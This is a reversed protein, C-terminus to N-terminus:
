GKNIVFAVLNNKSFEIIIAEAGELANEYSADDIMQVKTHCKTDCYDIYTKRRLQRSGRVETYERYKKIIPERYVFYNDKKFQSEHNGSILVIFEYFLFLFITFFLVGSGFNQYAKAYDKDMINKVIIPVLILIIIIIGVVDVFKRLFDFRKKFAKEIYEREFENLMDDGISDYWM